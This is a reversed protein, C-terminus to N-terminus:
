VRVPMMMVVHPGSVDEAPRERGGTQENNDLKGGSDLRMGQRQEGVGSM